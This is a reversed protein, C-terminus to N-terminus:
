ASFFRLTFRITGSPSLTQTPGPSISELYGSPGGGLYTLTYRGEPLNGIQFPVSYGSDNPPGSLSFRVPGEWPEGDLIADVIIRGNAITNFNFTFTIREGTEVPKRASLSVSVLAAGPPGGSIYNVSYSGSPLMTLEDPVSYFRDSIGQPGSLQFTLNGSWASGDLTARFKVSSTALSYFKMTFTITEGVGATQRSQPSISYLVAGSPGGSNYTFTYIGSPMNDYTRSVRSGDIKTPGSMTYNVSGLWTKDDLTARIRITSTEQTIFNFTFTTTSGEITTQTAQPTISALAAGAPGGSLYSVSYKGPTLNSFKDPVGDFDTTSGEPGTVRWRLAGSWSSGGLTARVRIATTPQSTFNLTYTITDDSSLYQLSDPTIDQFTAGAPGRSTYEIEYDGLPVKSFSKTASFGTYSNPGNINYIVLGEWPSNDLTANVVINGTAAAPAPAPEKAPTQFSWFPTWDSVQNGKYTKVKWYYTTGANLEGSPIAYCEGAIDEEAVLLNNFSNDNAVQIRYTAGATNSTWTLIPTLSRVVSGNPPSILKPISVPPASPQICGSLVMIGVLLPIIIKNM